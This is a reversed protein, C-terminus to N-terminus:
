LKLIHYIAYALGDEDHRKTIYDAVARCAPTANAVAIGIEALELLHADNDGDGFAALQSPSLGLQELVWAVGVHKGTDLHSFELRQHSSSTIYVEKDMTEYAFRRRLREMRARDWCIVDISDLEHAHSAIFLRINEAPRRTTFLYALSEPSAGYGLPDAMYATDAYAVGGVFAEYTVGPEDSFEMIRAVSQTPICRRMLVEGGPLSCVAAGNSTVVYRIGPIDCIDRPLTTFARGSAPVVAVGRSIAYELAERNDPSLRGERDLTTRDLDMAICRIDM